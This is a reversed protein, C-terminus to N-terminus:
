PGRGQADIPLGTYRRRAGGTLAVPVPKRMTEMLIPGGVEPGPCPGRGMARQHQAACPLVHQPSALHLEQLRPPTGEYYFSHPPYPVTAIASPSAALEGPNSRSISASM